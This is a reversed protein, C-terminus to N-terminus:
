FPLQRDPGEDDFLQRPPVGPEPQNFSLSAIMGVLGVLAVVGGPIGSSVNLTMIELCGLLIGGVTLGFSASLLQRDFLLTLRKRVPKLM